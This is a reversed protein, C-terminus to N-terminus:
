VPVINETVIDPEPGINGFLGGATIAAKTDQAGYVVRKVRAHVLAEACMFCPALSGDQRDPASLGTM